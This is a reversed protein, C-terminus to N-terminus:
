ASAWPQNRLLRAPARSPRDAVGVPEVGELEALVAARVERPLVACVAGLEGRTIHRSLARVVASLALAADLGQQARLGKSIEDMFEAHGMRRPKAGAKWGDFFLGKILLPMQASLKAAETPPLCDRLAHLVVRLAAYAQLRTRARATDQIDKLWVNAKQPASNFVAPHQRAM